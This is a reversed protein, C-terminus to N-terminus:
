GFSGKGSQINKKERLTIISIKGKRVFFIVSGRNVNYQM